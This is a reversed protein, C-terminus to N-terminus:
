EKRKTDPCCLGCDHRNFARYFKPGLVGSREGAVICLTCCVVFFAVVLFLWEINAHTLWHHPNMLNHKVRIGFFVWERSLPHHLIMDAFESTVWVREVEQRCQTSFVVPMPKPPPAAGKARAVAADRDKGPLAHALKAAHVQAKPDGEKLKDALCTQLRSAGDVVEPCYRARENACRTEMLPNALFDRAEDLRIDLQLAECAPELNMPPAVRLHDQLCRNVEGAGFPLDACFRDVDAKCPGLGGPNARLDKSRARKVGLLARACAADVSDENQLLCSIDRGGLERGVGAATLPMAGLHCARKSLLSAFDDRCAENLDPNLLLSKSRLIPEQEPTTRAHAHTHPQPPPLTLLLPCPFFRPFLPSCRASIPVFPAAIAEFGCLILLTSSSPPHLFARAGGPPSLQAALALPPVQLLRSRCAATTEPSDVHAELCKM